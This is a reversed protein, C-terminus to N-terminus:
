MRALRRQEKLLRPRRRLAWCTTSSAAVPAQLLAYPVHYCRRHVM